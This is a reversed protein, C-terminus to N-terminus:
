RRIGNTIARVIKGAIADVPLQACAAGISAAAAPMGYIIATSKDEAITFGGAMRMALLGSAGDDGMGTLLVGLGRSGLSSAMSNFLVTGSPRQGSVPEAGTVRLGNGTVELHRGGPAVYVKGAVPSEGDNAVVVTQPCASNLWSAFGDIFGEGMHQVLLIPLPFNAPLANLIAHFVKPGGTSAVMGVMKFGDKAKLPLGAPPYLAAETETEVRRISRQRVVKVQSMIYLQTCLTTAMSEYDAHGVGPPKELVAVAGARLAEMSSELSQRDIGASLIVIPLPCERMIQRTADLGNMGPLRIDMSIVDPRAKGLLRLGEEASVVSAAVELRPDRNVINEIFQRVVLSDEVIMVRVPDVKKM